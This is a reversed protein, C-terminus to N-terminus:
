YSAHEKEMNIHFRDLFENLESSVFEVKFVESFEDLLVSKVQKMDIEKGLINSLSTVGRHFIGCPIIREFYSLDTNVNFAFGHMTVWRSVKIGIACIKDEGIWVGTYDPDRTANIGYSHLVRIVVEELNRIYKHVDPEFKNLDFIPYAVLQGPGHYTIDGGRDVKYVSVGKDVLEEASALLHDESGSKGITYTHYHETLLMVDPIREATREAHLVKQLEWAIHYETFGIDVIIGKNM